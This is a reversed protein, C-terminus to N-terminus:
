GYETSMVYRTKAGEHEITIAYQTLIKESWMPNVEDAWKPRSVQLETENGIWPPALTNFDEGNLPRNQWSIIEDSFRGSGLFEGQEDLIEIWSGSNDWGDDLLGRILLVFAPKEAIPIKLFYLDSLSHQSYWFHREFTDSISKPADQQIRKIEVCDFGVSAVMGLLELSAILCDQYLEALNKSEYWDM